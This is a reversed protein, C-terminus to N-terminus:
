KKINEPDLYAYVTGPKAGDKHFSLLESVTVLQFGKEILEPVAQQVATATTAYLDHCLIIVGNKAGNMIARYTKSSNRTEWDLTDVKWHAIVMGLEACINRVSKNTKGYPPRLVKIEYGGTLERVAENTRELQSRATSASVEILNVHNWTHSAIENGMAIARKITDGFPAVNQGQVCFTARADYQALVSLIKDTEESPGDDFTLAIMPKTPDIQRARGRIYDSDLAMTEAVQAYRLTIARTGVSLPLYLGSPLVAEVGEKTLVAYQLWTMDAARDYGEAPAPMWEAAQSELSIMARMSDQFLRSADLPRGNELNLAFVAQLLQDGTEYDGLLLISQYKEDVQVAQYRVTYSAAEGSHNLVHDQEFVSLTGNVWNEIQTDIDDIGTELYRLDFTFDGSDRTMAMPNGLDHAARELDKARLGGSVTGSAGLAYESETDLIVLNKQLYGFVGGLRVRYWEGAAELVEVAAGSMAQKLIAAGSDASARLTLITGDNKTKGWGLRTYNAKITLYATMMYGEKGDVRVRCWEGQNELIDVQTGEKYTNIIKGDSAPSQRLHLKGGTVTGIYDAGEAGAGPLLACLLLFALLLAGWKKKGM